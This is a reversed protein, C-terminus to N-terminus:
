KGAKKFMKILFAPKKKVNKNTTVRTGFLGRSSLTKKMFFLVSLFAKGKIFLYLMYNDTLINKNSM